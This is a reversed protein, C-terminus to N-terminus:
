SYYVIENDYSIIDNDYFVFEGLNIESSTIGSITASNVQANLKTNTVLETAAFSYGTTLTAAM